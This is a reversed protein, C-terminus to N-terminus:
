KFFEPLIQKAKDRVRSVDGMPINRYPWRLRSDIGCWDGVAAMFKDAAQNSYSDKGLYPKICSEMFFCIRKELELAGEMDTKMSEYWQHTIRPNLCSVNSYSGQAGSQIGSAMYHGPIFVSLHNMKERMENYWQDSGGAVKCGILPIQMTKIRMFDTPSLQKKAHPPNYLVIGIPDADSCVKELFAFMESDSPSWWDPLIIQIASPKLHKARHLREFSTQPSMHSCGIQFPMGAANCKEALLTQIKDFETETQNYFEGATGNSYIGTVGAAILIDIEESLLSYDINNQETIPLLLTAWDGYLEKKDSLLKM